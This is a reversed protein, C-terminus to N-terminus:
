PESRLWLHARTPQVVTTTTQLLDGRVDDVEVRDRLRDVFAQVTREADYRARNFRRNVLRQVRERVPHFAAAVALTAGAVALQSDGGLSSAVGSLMFVVGAYLIGLVGTVAAYSLTRSVIRDIDYLRYRLVALTAFVPISSLGGGFLLGSLTTLSENNGTLATALMVAGGAATLTGSLALFKLQQREVGQAARYRVVLSGGAAAIVVTSLLWIVDGVAAILGQAAKWAFPNEPGVGNGLETGFVGSFVMFGYVAVSAWVLPRWRQSPLHGTPFCLLLLAIMLWLLGPAWASVWGVLAAGPLPDVGPAYSAQGYIEGFNGVAMLSALGAFIWGIGHGPRRVLLVCALTVMVLVLGIAGATTSWQLVVVSARAGLPGVLLAGVVSAVILAAWSAVLRVRM